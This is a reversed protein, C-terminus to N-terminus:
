RFLRKGRMRCADFHWWRTGPWSACAHTCTRAM